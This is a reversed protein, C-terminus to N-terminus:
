SRSTSSRPPKSGRQASESPQATDSGVPAPRKPPFPSAETYTGMFVRDWLHSAGSIKQENRFIHTERPLPGAELPPFPPAGMLPISYDAEGLIIIAACEPEEEAIRALQSAPPLTALNDEEAYDGVRQEAWERDIAELRAVEWNELGYIREREKIYDIVSVLGEVSSFSASCCTKQRIDIRISFDVFDKKNRHRCIDLATAIQCACPPCYIYVRLHYRDNDEPESEDNAIAHAKMANQNQIHKELDDRDFYAPQIYKAIRYGPASRTRISGPAIFSHRYDFSMAGLNTQDCPSESVQARCSETLVFFWKQYIDVHVINM